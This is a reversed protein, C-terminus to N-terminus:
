RSLIYYQRRTKTEVECAEKLEDILKFYDTKSIQVSNIKRVNDRELLQRKFEVEVSIDM